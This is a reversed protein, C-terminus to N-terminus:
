TIAQTYARMWDEFYAIIWISLDVPSVPFKAICHDRKMILDHKAPSDAMRDLRENMEAILEAKRNALMERQKPSVIEEQRYRPAFAM